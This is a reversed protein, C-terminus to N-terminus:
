IRSLTWILSASSFGNVCESKKGSLLSGLSQLTCIDSVMVMVLIYFFATWTQLTACVRKIWANNPWEHDWKYYTISYSNIKQIINIQEINVNFVTRLFGDFYKVYEWIVNQTTCIRMHCNSNHMNEYSM